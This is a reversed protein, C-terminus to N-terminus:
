LYISGMIVVILAAVCICSFIGWWFYGELFLSSILVSLSIILGIMCVVFLFIISIKFLIEFTSYNWDRM